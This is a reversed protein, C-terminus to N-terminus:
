PGPLGVTVKVGDPRLHRRVAEEVSHRTLAELRERRWGPRDLPLRYLESRAMLSAWQRATEHGFPERGLLYSRAEEMEEETIGGEVLRAIEEKVGREAQEVREVSTGVYVVLRGPDLGCGAVTQALASYALGERERIREPIRGTLGAGSGLIVGALELAEYDPHNRAVTRHGAYLHAQDSEAVGETDVRELAIEVRDAVLGRPESPECPEVGPDGRSPLPRDLVQRLREEVEGEDLDGAAAVVLGRALGARHIAACAEPTTESLGERTGQLPRSRPHPDYLQELFAWGTRVEPRDGLSDLEAVAQRCAWDCRDAPFVSELLLEGLRDVAQRWDPALADVRLEHRDFHASSSLDMGLAEAEDALDRWSRRRTGETLLRGTILCLGPLPERRAGGVVWARLSVVPAGPVRRVRVVRHSRAGGAERVAGASPATTEAGRDEPVAGPAASM